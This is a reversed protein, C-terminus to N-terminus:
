FEKVLDTIRDFNGEGKSDRLVVDFNKKYLLLDKDMNENLIGIKLTKDKDEKSVMNIDEILDGVLVIKEKDKIKEQFSKPLHRKLNKNMTHIIKSNDFKKVNGKEDFEIFNSIIYMNDLMCDNEELFQKISNGIGASLIIVPINNEKMFVLFQKAGKRFKMGSIKISKKMKEKTVNYKYYLDMCDSYWIKMQKEKEEKSINYDMEIPRYKNYLEDMEKCMQEGVVQPNASAAWSDSSNGLTITKDFDLVVYFNM